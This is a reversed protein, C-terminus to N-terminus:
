SLDEGKYLIRIVWPPVPATDEGEDEIVFATKYSPPENPFTGKGDSFYLLGKMEKLEGKEMLENVRKFVPRFDTGGFGHLQLHTIWHDFEDQNHICVEEQVRADCQLIYVNMDEFFMGSTKLVDYTKELFRRVKDGQTSGSTDIAIVFDRIRKDEKYELPEILPMNHYLQLGYTYWVYDYSDVDLKMEENNVAFRRLLETFDEHKYAHMTFLQTLTGPEYGRMKEYHEAQRKTEHRTNEWSAKNEQNKLDSEQIVREEKKQAEGWLVHMDRRFLSAYGLWRRKEKPHELLYVYIADANLKTKEGLEELMSRRMDDGQTEAKKYHLQLIVNEVALDAALDWVQGELKEYAFMHTFLCHMITHLYLRIVESLDQEYMQTVISALAYIQMGDTGFSVGPGKEDEGATFIVPMRLMARNLYPMSAIIEEQTLNLIKRAIGQYPIEKTITSFTDTESM